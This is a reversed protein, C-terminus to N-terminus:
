ESTTIISNSSLYQKSFEKLENDIDDGQKRLKKGKDIYKLLQDMEKRLLKMNDTLEDKEIDVYRLTQAFYMSLEQQVQASANGSTMDVILKMKSSAYDAYQRKFAREQATKTWMLREYLYLSGYIGAVVGLVKWGVSRWILACGGLAVLGSKSTLASINNATTLLDNTSNLLSTSSTLENIHKPGTLSEKQNQVFRQWLCTFGLSFKFQIDERFDSCLNSCDLRYSVAFDSRPVISDVLMKRENNSLVSKVREKIERHVSSLSAYLATNLRNQLNSGLRDEVWRHLDRKYLPIQEADSSFPRDFEEILTYL